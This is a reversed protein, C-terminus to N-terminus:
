VVSPLLRQYFFLKRCRTLAVSIDIDLWKGPPLLLLGGIRHPCRVSPPLPNGPSMFASPTLRHCQQGGVM